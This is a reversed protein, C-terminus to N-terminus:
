QYTFAVTITGIVTGATVATGDIASGTAYLRASQTFLATKTAGDVTVTRTTNPYITTGASDKLWIVVNKATGQNVFSDTETSSATGSYSAVVKTTSSPCDKLKLDFSKAEGTDGKKQLKGVDIDPLVVSVPGTTEITCPSATINGTVNVTVADALAAPAIFVAAVSAATLCHLTRIIM